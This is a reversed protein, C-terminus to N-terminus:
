QRQPSIKWAKRLDDATPSENMQRCLEAFDPNQALRCESADRLLPVLAIKLKGPNGIKRVLTGDPFHGFSVRNGYAPPHPDSPDTVLAAPFYPPTSKTTSDAHSQLSIEREFIDANGLLYVERGCEDKWQAAPDTVAIGYGVWKDFLDRQDDWREFFFKGSADTRTTASRKVEPSPRHDFNTPLYTALLCVEMGPLPRGTVADVVTGYIQPTGIHFPSLRDLLGIFGGPSFKWFLFLVLVVLVILVLAASLVYPWWWKMKSRRVPPVFAAM